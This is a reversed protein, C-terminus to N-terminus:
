ITLILQWLFAYGFAIAFCILAVGINKLPNVKIEDVQDFTEREQRESM